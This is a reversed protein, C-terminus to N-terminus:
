DLLTRLSLESDLGLISRTRAKSYGQGLGLTAMIRSRVIIELIM